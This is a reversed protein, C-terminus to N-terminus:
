RTFECFLMGLLRYREVPRLIPFMPHSIWGDCIRSLSPWLACQEIAAGPQAPDRLENGPIHWAPDTHTVGGPHARYFVLHEPLVAFRYGARLFRTWLEYDPARVMSPDDLGVALHAARDVM